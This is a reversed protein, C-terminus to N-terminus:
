ASSMLCTWTLFFAALSYVLHTRLTKFDLEIASIGDSGYVAPCYRDNSVGSSYHVPCLRLQLIKIAFGPFEHCGVM